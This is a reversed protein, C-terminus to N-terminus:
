EAEGGALERWFACECEPSCFKAGDNQKLAAQSIGMEEYWPDPSDTGDVVCGEAHADFMELCVGCQEFQDPLVRLHEQLFWIVSFAEHRNLRPQHNMTMGEPLEKGTLMDMLENIQHIDM